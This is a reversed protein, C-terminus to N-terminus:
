STSRDLLGQQQVKPGHQQVRPECVQSKVTPCGGFNNWHGHRHVARKGTSDHDQAARRVRHRLLGPLVRLILLCACASQGATQGIYSAFMNILASEYSAEDYQFLM